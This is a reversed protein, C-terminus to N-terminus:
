NRERTGWRAALLDRVVVSAGAAAGVSLAAFAVAVPIRVQRRKAAALYAAADGIDTLAQATLWPIAGSGRRAADLTGLGLALERAGVLQALWATRAATVRDVGLVLALLDPRTLVLVGASLRM